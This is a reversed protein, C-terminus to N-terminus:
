PLLLLRCGGVERMGARAYAARAPRNWRGVHLITPRATERLCTAVLATALGRGRHEPFTFVGEIVRGAPGDSGIDLKCVVAGPEGVVRTSGSSIREDITDRLWRRDVRTPDVNLDSHNLQLTAQMLAARDMPQALRVDSRCPGASAADGQYYIQDRLALVKGALSARLRDVVAPPGMAIRWTHRLRLIAGVWAEAAGASPEDATIVVLNGRPGVWVLGAEEARGEGVFGDGEGAALANRVYVGHAGAAAALAIAQGDDSGLERWIGPM